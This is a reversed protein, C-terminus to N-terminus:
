TAPNSATIWESVAGDYRLQIQDDSWHQAICILKSKPPQPEGSARVFIAFGDFYISFCAPRHESALRVAHRVADNFAPHGFAQHDTIVARLGAEAARRRRRVM